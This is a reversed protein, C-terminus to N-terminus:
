KKQHMGRRTGDWSSVAASIYRLSRNEFLFFDRGLPFIDARTCTLRVTGILQDGVEPPAPHSHTPSRLKLFDDFFSLIWHYKQRNKLNERRGAVKKVVSACLVSRNLRTFMKLHEDHSVVFFTKSFVKKQLVGHLFSPTVGIYRETYRQAVPVGTTRPYSAAPM